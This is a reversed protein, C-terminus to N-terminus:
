NRFENSRIFHIFRLQGHLTDIAEEIRERLSRGENKKSQNLMGILLACIKKWYDETYQHVGEDLANDFLATISEKLEVENDKVARHQIASQYFRLKQSLSNIFQEAKELKPDSTNNADLLLLFANWSAEDNKDIVGGFWQGSHKQVKFNIRNRSKYDNNKVAKMLEFSQEYTEHLPHKLYGISVGYTMCPRDKKEKLSPYNEYEGNANKKNFIVDFKQDIDRILHFVTQFMQNDGEKKRSAVPAFFVLDDGGIYIPAGGYGWDTQCGGTFRSGAIVINAAKAFELLDESFKTVEEPKLAGILSGIRDGDGHVIAVYRHYTRHYDKTGEISFLIALLEDEKADSEIDIVGEALAATTEKEKEILDLYDRRVIKDYQEKIEDSIFRLETTTIEPLSPFHLFKKRDKGYETTNFADRLLWSHNIGRLFVKMPDPDFGAISSRLEAHDLLVNMSRVIGLNEGKDTKLNLADPNALVTYVQLYNLLYDKAGDWNEQVKQKLLKAFPDFAPYTKIATMIENVVEEKIKVVVKTVYAWKDEGAQIIIRDPYLGVGPHIDDVAAPSPLLIKFKDANLRQVLKRCLYSFLYSGGWLERTKEAKKFTKYIPGITIGIYQTNIM